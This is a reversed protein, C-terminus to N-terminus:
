TNTYLMWSYYLILNEGKKKVKSKQTSNESALTSQYSFAKHEIDSLQKKKLTAKIREKKKQGTYLYDSNM